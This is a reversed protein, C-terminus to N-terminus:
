VDKKLSLERKLDKWLERIINAARLQSYLGLLSAIWAFKKRTDIQYWVCWAALYNLLFPILLLTACTM